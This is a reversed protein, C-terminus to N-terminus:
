SNALKQGELKEKLDKIRNAKMTDPWRHEQLRKVTSPILQSLLNSGEFHATKWLGNQTVQWNASPMDCVDSADYGYHQLKPLNAMFAGIGWIKGNEPAKGVYAIEIDAYDSSSIKVIAKGTGTTSKLGFFVLGRNIDRFIAGLLGLHWLSFNELVIEGEFVPNVLYKMRYAKAQSTRRDIRVHTVSKRSVPLARFDTIQMRRGGHSNGFTQCVPCVDAYYDPISIEDSSEGLKNQSDRLDIRTQVRDSCSLRTPNKKDSHISHLPDCAGADHDNVTRAIREAQMRLVGKLSSGPLVYDESNFGWIQNLVVNRQNEGSDTVFRGTMELRLPICCRNLLYKQM